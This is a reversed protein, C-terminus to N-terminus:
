FSINATANLDLKALIGKKYNLYGAGAVMVANDTCLLLDPCFFDMGNEKAKRQMKERLKKNASVGGAIAIKNCSVRKSAEITNSVLVDTVAEEFSASIDAKSIPEKAQEKKHVYNIVATKLGSFSFDLDNHPRPFNVADPNGELALKSIKPGGPYGLGLVRAVKDFAEGPADDETQGLTEFDYYNKVNIIHSHGGSAVLCVFPPKLDKNTVYNAAIHAHIHNVPVLPKKVAYSLAKATSVGALLSGILGPTDTVAIASLDSFTVNAEKLASDIVTIIKEIHRRSAIEPVVGGYKEHEKIQTYIINSLVNRGDAVVSAATEDCSTEIGLILDM